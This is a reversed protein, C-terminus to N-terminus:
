RLNRFEPLRSFFDLASTNDEEADFIGAVYSSFFPTPSIAISKANITYLVTPTLAYM